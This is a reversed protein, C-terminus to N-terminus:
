RAAGRRRAALAFGAVVALAAAAAPVLGWRGAWAAYPTTGVRGQVPGLLVGRSHPALLKEVRGRHDVIATAGTNTARVSPRQLELSRMRAIQLHQDVAVTDGFWAINSLNALVTPATDEADVFRAALEEGFLDEYCINPAVRQGGVAFSPAVLPGRAFDGLPIRMLDVFWRFGPPIFEGFPVLHHKDYRYEGGPLAAAARSFGVASNTYGAEFSGLPVGVLAARGGQAFEARLREWLGEPLQSPLLPIATEPAIVLQAPSQLLARLTWELAEGQFVPEFKENQPVNGQLLAVQLTGAPRTFDQPLALPLLGLALAGAAPGLRARGRATVASAALAALAAALAGLGYVGFWPALAALPSDTHAYGSAVWPFGTFLRARALEALLWLAAFLAADPGPRGRRWRVFAAAAAALYLALFGCLLLVALAALPAALGGYRHLSIYLWWVGGLLWATGFAWGLLAGRRATPAAALRAFLWAVCALQLWGAERPAFSLAHLGGALAALLSDLGASWARATRGTSGASAVSSAPGTHPEPPSQPRQVAPRAERPATEAPRPSAAAADSEAPRPPLPASPGGGPLEPPASM